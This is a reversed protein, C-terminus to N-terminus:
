KLKENKFSVLQYLYNELQNIITSSSFNLATERGKKSLDDRAKEDKLLHILGKALGDIDGPEALIANEGNKIYVDIGGCSTSVVPIGSAMAELPPMGFGEYWSTFLFIDANRYCEALKEQTPMVVYEISFPFPVHELSPKAQCVWKVKFRYGSRRVRILTQIAIDFGKFLLHPNGVLLIINENPRMDPYYFDTDIGNPIVPAIRGFRSYINKFIIPSVSTIAVPQHYCHQLYSRINENLGDGFLYENGQEWYMIPINANALEEM